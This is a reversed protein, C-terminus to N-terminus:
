GPPRGLGGSRGPPGKRRLRGEGCEPILAKPRAVAFRTEIGREAINPKGSKGRILTFRPNLSRPFFFFTVFNKM